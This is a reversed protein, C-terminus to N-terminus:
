LFTYSNKFIKLFVNYPGHGHMLSHRISVHCVLSHVYVYARDQIIIRWYTEAISVRQRIIIFEQVYKYIHM